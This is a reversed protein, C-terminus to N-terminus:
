FNGVKSKIEESILKNYMFPIDNKLTQRVKEYSFLLISIDKHGHVSSFKMSKNSNHSPDIRSDNLLLEIVQIHGFKICEILAQNCESSSKYKLLLIIVNVNGIQGAYHMSNLYSSYTHTVPMEILYELLEINSNKIASIFTFETQLSLKLIIKNKIKTIINTM